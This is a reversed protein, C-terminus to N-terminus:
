TSELSLEFLHGDAKKNSVKFVSIPKEERFDDAVHFLVIFADALVVTVSVFWEDKDIKLRREFDAFIPIGLENKVLIWRRLDISEGPAVPIGQPPEILVPCYSSVPNAM